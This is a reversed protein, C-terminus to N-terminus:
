LRDLDEWLFSAHSQAHTRTTHTRMRPPHTDTVYTTVHHYRSQETSIFDTERRRRQDNEAAGHHALAV